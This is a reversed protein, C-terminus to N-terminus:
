TCIKIQIGKLDDKLTNLPSDFQEMTPTASFDATLTHLAQSLVTDVDGITNMAM